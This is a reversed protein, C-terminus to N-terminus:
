CECLAKGYKAGGAEEARRIVPRGEAEHEASETRLM